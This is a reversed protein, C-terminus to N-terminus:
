SKENKKVKPRFQKAKSHNKIGLIMIHYSISEKNGQSAVDANLASNGNDEM